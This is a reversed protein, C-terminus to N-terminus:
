NYLNCYAMTKRAAFSSQGPRHPIYTTSRIVVYRLRGPQHCHTRNATNTPSTATEKPGSTNHRVVLLTLYQNLIINCSFM